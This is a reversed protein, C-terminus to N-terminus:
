ALDTIYASSALWFLTYQPALLQKLNKSDSINMEVIEARDGNFNLRDSTNEASTQASRM